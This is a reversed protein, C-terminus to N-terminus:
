QSGADGAPCSRESCIMVGMSTCSCVNCTGPTIPIPVCAGGEGADGGSDTADGGGDSADGGGDSADGGGDGPGGDGPGGGVFCPQGHPTAVDAADLRVADATGTGNDFFLVLHVDYRSPVQGAPGPSPNVSGLGGIATASPPGGSCPERTGWMVAFGPPGSIPLQPKNAAWLELTTCTDGDRRTITFAPLDEGSTDAGCYGDAPQPQEPGACCVDRVGWSCGATACQGPTPMPGVITAPSQGLVPYYCATSEPTPGCCGCGCDIVPGVGAPCVGGGLADPATTSPSADMARTQDQSADGGADAPATAGVDAAADRGTPLAANGVPSRHCAALAFVGGFALSALRRPRSPVVPALPQLGHALRGAGSLGGLGRSASGVAGTRWSNRIGAVDDGL